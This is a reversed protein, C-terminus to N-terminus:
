SRRAGDVVSTRCRSAPSAMTSWQVRDSKPGGRPGKGAPVDAAGSTSLAALNDSRHAIRAVVAGGLVLQSERETAGDAEREGCQKEQEAAGDEQEQDGGGEKAEGEAALARSSDGPRRRTRRM